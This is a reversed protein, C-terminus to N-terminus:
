VGMGSVQQQAGRGVFLRLIAESKKAVEPPMAERLLSVIKPKEEDPIRQFMEALKKIQDRGLEEINANTNDGSAEDLQVEVPDEALSELMDWDDGIAVWEMLFEATPNGLAAPMLLGRLGQPQQLTSLVQKGANVGEPGGPQPEVYGSPPTTLDNGGGNGGPQAVPGEGPQLGQPALQAQLEPPLAM